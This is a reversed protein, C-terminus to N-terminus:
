RGQAPGIMSRVADCLLLSHSANVRYFVQTGKRQRALVGSRYLTALNQSVSPQAGGLADRLQTVNMECDCLLSIIRLRLPTGLLAFVEAAREFVAASDAEPTGQGIM